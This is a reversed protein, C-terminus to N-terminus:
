RVMGFTTVAALFARSACGVPDLLVTRGALRDAVREGRYSAIRRYHGIFYLVRLFLKWRLPAFYNPTIVPV